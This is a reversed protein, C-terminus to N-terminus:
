CRGVKNQRSLSIKHVWFSVHDESVGMKINGQKWWSKYRGSQGRHANKQSGNKINEEEKSKTKDYNSIIEKRSLEFSRIEEAGKKSKCWVVYDHMTGKGALKGKTTRNPKGANHKGKGALKEKRTRIPEGM